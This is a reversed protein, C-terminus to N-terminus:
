VSVQAEEDFTRLNETQRWLRAPVVCAPLVEGDAADDPEAICFQSTPMQCRACLFYDMLTARSAASGLTLEARLEQVRAIAQKATVAFHVLGCHGCKYEPRAPNFDIM